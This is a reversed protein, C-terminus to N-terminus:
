LQVQASRLAKTLQDCCSTEDHRHCTNGELLSCVHDVSLGEILKSVANLNGDCGGHFKVVKVVDGKLEIDIAYCCVGNPRYTYM